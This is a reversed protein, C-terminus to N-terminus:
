SKSATRQIFFRINRQWIASFILQGSFGSPRALTNPRVFRHSIAGEGRGLPSLAPALPKNKFVDAEEGRGEGGQTLLPLFITHPL